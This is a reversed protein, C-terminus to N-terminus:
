PPASSKVHLSCGVAVVEGSTESALMDASNRITRLASALVELHNSTEPTELWLLAMRSLASIEACGQQVLRDVETVVQTFHEASPPPRPTM